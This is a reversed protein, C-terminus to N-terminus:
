HMELKKFSFGNEEFYKIAKPLAYQMNKFAKVSDHFVIIDGDRAKEVVNKLCQEPTVSVEWDFAIVRYMIIRHGLRCLDKAQKRKIKGYPPRLLTTSLQDQNRCLHKKMELEALHSNKIYTETDTNWGNLHNYTHNGVAHGQVIIRKFVEPYKRVNDGICFFTAPIPKDRKRSLTDLVFDTVEPIPGDDFTLYVTKRQTKKDWVYAQPYFWKIFAPVRSTKFYM